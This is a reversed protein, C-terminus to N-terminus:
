SAKEKLINITTNNIRIKEWVEKRFNYLVLILIPSRANMHIQKMDDIM